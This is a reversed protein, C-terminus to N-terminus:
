DAPFLLGLLFLKNKFQKDKFIFAGHDKSIDAIVGV